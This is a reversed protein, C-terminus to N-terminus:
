NIRPNTLINEWDLIKLTEQLNIAYVTGKRYDAISIKSEDDSNRSCYRLNEIIIEGKCTEM